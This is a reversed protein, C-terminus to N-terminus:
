CILYIGRLQGLQAVVHRVMTDRLRAGVVVFLLVWGVFFIRWTVWEIM